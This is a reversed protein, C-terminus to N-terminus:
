DESVDGPDSKVVGFSSGSVTEEYGERRDLSSVTGKAWTM